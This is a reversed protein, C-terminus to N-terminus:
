LHTLYDFSYTSTRLPMNYRTHIHIITLLIGGLLTVLMRWAVVDRFSFIRLM